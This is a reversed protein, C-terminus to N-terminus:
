EGRALESGVIAELEAIHIEVQAKREALSIRLGLLLRESDLLSLFDIEGTLYGTETAELSQEARPLLEDQYLAVLDVAIRYQNYLDEIDAMIHSRAAEYSRELRRIGSQHQRTENRVKGFWLPVRVGVTVNWADRGSDPIDMATEGINFYSMGILFDPFYKRRALSLSQNRQDIRHRASRLEPQDSAIERIQDLTEVISEPPFPPDIAVPSDAERNLLANLKAALTNRRKRFELEREDLKLMEIQVKLLDQQHAGGTELRTAVTEEFRGLLVREKEIVGLIEDVATISYCATKVRKTVRLRALHLDEEAVLAEFGAIEEMLSLKGPFPVPQVLKLVHQQPGLRTEIEDIFYSYSLIPYPYSGTVAAGYRATEINEELAKLEPNRELALEIFERLEATEARSHHLLIGTLACVFILSLIPLRHM